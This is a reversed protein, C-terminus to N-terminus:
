FRFTPAVLLTLGVGGAVVAGGWGVNTWTRLAVARDRKGLDRHGSADWENRADLTQTGLFAAVGSLVVGTGLAVWGWTRSPATVVVKHVADSAPPSSRPPPSPTARPEDPSERSSLRLAVHQIEGARVEVPTVGTQGHFEARIERLGPTLHVRLPVPGGQHDVTVMAGVPADISVTGLLKKLAGLREEAQHAEEETLGGMELATEYDDAARPFEGGQDWAIGANFKAGAAPALRYAAEFLTAATVYEGRAHASMGEGFKQKAALEHDDARAFSATSLRVVAVLVVLLSRHRSM